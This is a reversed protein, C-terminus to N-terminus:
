TGSQGRRKAHRTPSAAVPDDPWHHKPYRGKLDKRVEFYTTRWFGALDRTVQVPRRAPSLLHLTLPVQGRGVTPTTVQGFLEQLRVALVPGAPDTYDVQIRSGTPVQVHTPAWHDLSGRLERPVLDLLAEGLDVERLDHIRRFGKVRAGLWGELSGVLAEESVDPWRPDLRHLFALRARAQRAADTWPLRDLGERRIGEILIPAVADPDPNALPADDLALAGLRRRRRAVVALSGGDWTLVDERVVANAFQAELEELSVPLALFIRSEPRQGDLEAAVIYDQGALAPDDVFAGAGNRLVFKGSSGPRRQAVRDPYALALVLGPSPLSATPKRAGGQGTGRCLRVEARARRLAERDLEARQVTGRLLDLRLSLDADAPGAARRLLDREALLAALECALEGAGLERGRVVMHALRPHLSHRAIRRGHDTVRGDDELAGLSRLLARAEKLAAAPPPDLWLLDGPDAVGADALDLALPALDAELIEPANRPLLAVEEAASWLRYCVGPAQRGARGRRQDASARSVRVTVLRTMGIRPSYRPVRAQGGDVVVRVGDVTLSTEAISTALVVKRRGARSPQLARDQLERSLTGYLPIVDAELDHLLREARRIEGAGPLFALIDGADDELAGRIAAAVAADVRTGARPPVHRTQVPFSRGESSVIPADGLLRAVPEGELTASMVLIRLEPRLIARSQLTLALGLDAHISREHFEDFVVLGVSELAPDSRLMRTLVGETVVEIRTGPGVRTDHRIRYGVTEGVREGLTEAMRSAAARAALRRPELMVIRSTGLWAEESLAIPVRTTKGAGPPAQLVATGTSALAERLAPLAPEIPLPDPVKLM